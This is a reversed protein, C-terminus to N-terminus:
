VSEFDRLAAFSQIAADHLRYMGANSIHTRGYLATRVQPWTMQQGYRFDTYRLRLIERELPDSISAIAEDVRRMYALNKRYEESRSACYDLRQDVATMPDHTGMHQSGDGGHPTISVEAAVLTMIRQEISRNARWYREYSKLDEITM